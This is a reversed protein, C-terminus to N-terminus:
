PMIKKALELINKTGHYCADLTLFPDKQYKPPSAPCALNFICDVELKIQKGLIM